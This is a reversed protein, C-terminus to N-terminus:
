ALLSHELLSDLEQLLKSDKIASWFKIFKEKKEIRDCATLCKKLDQNVEKIAHSIPKDNTDHATTDINQLIGELQKVKRFLEDQFKDNLGLAVIRDRVQAITFKVTQFTIDIAVCAGKNLVVTTAM